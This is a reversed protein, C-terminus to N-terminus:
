PRNATASFACEDAAVVLQARCQRSHHFLSTQQIFQGFRAYSGHRSPQAMDAGFPGESACRGRDGAGKSMMM